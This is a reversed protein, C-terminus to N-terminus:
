PIPTGLGGGPLGLHRLSFLETIDTGNIPLKLYSKVIVLQSLVRKAENPCLYTPQM